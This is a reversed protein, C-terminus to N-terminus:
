DPREADQEGDSTATHAAFGFPRKPKDPDKKPLAMLLFSIQSVHQVLQVPTKGDDLFGNFNILSPNWYGISEVYIKVEQGYSVLRVGIEHDADLEADFNKCYEELRRQFESAFEGEAIALMKSAPPQPLPRNALENLLRSHDEFPHLPPDFSKTM